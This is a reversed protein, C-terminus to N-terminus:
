PEPTRTSAARWSANGTTSSCGREFQVCFGVGNATCSGLQGQDYCPEPERNRLSFARLGKPVAPLPPLASLLLDRHDPLDPRWGYRQIRRAPLDDEISLPQM